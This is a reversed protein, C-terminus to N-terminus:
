GFWHQAAREERELALQLHDRKVLRHEGFWRAGTLGVALRAEGAGVGLRVRDPAVILPQQLGAELLVAQRHDGQQDGAPVVPQVVERGFQCGGQARHDLADAPAIRWISPTPRVWKLRQPSPLSCKWTQNRARGRPM